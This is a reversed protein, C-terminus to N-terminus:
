WEPDSRLMKKQFIIDGKQLPRIEYHYEYLENYDEKLSEIRDEDKIDEVFGEVSYLSGFAVLLLVGLFIKNNM